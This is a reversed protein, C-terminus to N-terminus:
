GSGHVGLELQVPVGDDRAEAEGPEALTVRAADLGSQAALVEAVAAARQRGLELLRAEPQAASAVLHDFLAAYFPADESARGLRGAVPNIRKVERGTQEAQRTAFADVAAKGVREAALKELALQSAAGAFDPPPPDDGAAVAEDLETALALALDRHALARGAVAPDYAGGVTLALQPRAALAEAVRALKEREPPSLTNRGAAFLVTDHDDGADGLVAGLARFPATVIKGILNALAQGILGGYSFEPQDVNGRVPLVAEIKGSSDSLLAVALDLPLDAADPSEVQEGLTFERLVIRNDGLLESQELKYELDLDLKGSAIARGAFTATYPSLPSMEVNRFAVNVDAFAKPAFPALSGRVTTQGYEGVQGELDLAARAEQGPALGTVDGGLAHVQTAFPLVLSLDAFDVEGDDIRIRKVRVPFGAASNDSAAEAPPTPDTDAVDTFVRALNVTRDEFIVIKAGPGALRVEDITLEGPEVQLAVGKADLAKWALFRDGTIKERILLDNLSLDGRVRLKPVSGNTAYDLAVGSSLTGSDLDLAAIRSLLPALPALALRDLEIRAEASSGDQAARGSVKAGGGQRVQLRGEYRIPTVGDNSLESLTLDIADFDFAVAPESTADAYAVAFGGLAIEDIAFQWPAGEADASTLATDLDRRLKGRDSTSMAVLERVTGDAERNLQTRGGDLQIRAIDVRRGAFDLRGGDIGITEVDLVPTGDAQQVSVESLAIGFEEAVLQPAEGGVEAHARLTASTSGVALAVPTARSADSFDIGLEDLTLSALEVRWPDGPGAVGDSAVEAVRDGPPPATWNLTGDADVAGSVRGGRVALSPLSVTRTALDLQGDRLEISDLRLLPSGGQEVGTLEELGVELGELKLTPEDAGLRAVARLGLRARGVGFDVPTTRQGDRIALGSAELTLADFQIDWPEGAAYAFRYALDLDVSGAPETLHPPAHLLPWIGELRLDTVRLTGNSAIPNLAIEGEWAIEGGLPLRARLGYPGRREPLTSIDNLQLNLPTAVLSAAEPVTEDTFTLTGDQLVVQELVLRPPGDDAEAPAAAPTAPFADGLRALNLRSDAGLVLHLDPGELRIEALTWAWRFLSKVELDVFLRDLALIPRGDAERLALDRAEFTLLFPNIRVEGLEAQRQLREHAFEPVFRQVLYPALLFGALAYLGVAIALGLAWRRLRPHKTNGHPEDTDPQPEREAM